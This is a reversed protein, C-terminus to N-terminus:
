LARPDVVVARGAEASVVPDGARHLRDIDDSAVAFRSSRRAMAQIRAAPDSGGRRGRAARPSGMAVGRDLLHDCAPGLATALPPAADIRIEARCFGPM